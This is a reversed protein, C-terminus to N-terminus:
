SSQRNPGEQKRLHFAVALELRHDIGTKRAIAKVHSRATEPSISLERSIQADRICGSALNELVEEERPTLRVESWNVAPLSGGFAALLQDSTRMRRSAGQLLRWTTGGLVLVVVAQVFAVTTLTFTLRETHLFGLPFGQLAIRQLGGITVAAFAAASARQISKLGPSTSRQAARLSKVFLAGFVVTNTVILLVRIWDAM